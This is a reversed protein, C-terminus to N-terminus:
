NVLQEITVKELFDCEKSLGYAYNISPDIISDMLERQKAKDMKLYVYGKIFSELEEKTDFKIM